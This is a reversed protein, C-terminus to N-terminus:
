HQKFTFEEKHEILYKRCKICTVTKELIQFSNYILNKEKRWLFENIENFCYLTEGTLAKEDTFGCPCNGDDLAIHIKFRYPIGYLYFFKLKKEVM